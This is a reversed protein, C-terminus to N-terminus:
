SYFLCNWVRVDIFQSFAEGFGYPIDRNGMLRTFSPDELEKIYPPKKKTIIDKYMPDSNPWFWVIDHQVTSPYVAVCAKQFTHVQFTIPTALKNSLPLLRILIEFIATSNSGRCVLM